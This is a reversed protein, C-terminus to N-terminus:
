RGRGDVERDFKGGVKELWIEYSRVKNCSGPLALPPDDSELEASWDKGPLNGQIETEM